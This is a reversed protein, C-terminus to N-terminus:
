RINSKFMENVIISNFPELLLIDYRGSENSNYSMHQLIKAYFNDIEMGSPIAMNLIDDFITSRVAYAYAGVIQGRFHSEILGGFYFMDSRNAASESMKIIESLDQLITVDDELILILKYKREKALKIIGLHSDRCGISGKIYKEDRKNFNRWLVKDPIEKCEIAEFREYNTIGLKKFQNIMYIDRSRERKLNIYFIKDFFTDIYNM